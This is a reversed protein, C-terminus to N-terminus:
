FLPTLAEFSRIADVTLSCEAEQLSNGQLVVSLDPSLESTGEKGQAERVLTLGSPEFTLISIDAGRDWAVPFYLVPNEAFGFRNSLDRFIKTDTMTFVERQHIEGHYVSIKVRSSSALIQRINSEAQQTQQATFTYIVRPDDLSLALSLEEVEKPVQESIGVIQTFHVGTMDMSRMQKEWQAIERARREECTNSESCGLM